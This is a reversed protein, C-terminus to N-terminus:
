LCESDITKMNPPIGASQKKRKDRPEGIEWGTGDGFSVLMIDLRFKKYFASNQGELGPRYSEDITFVFTEDPDLHPDDPEAVNKILINERKGFTLSVGAEGNPVPVDPFVLYALIFYIPKGSINKVKIELDKNWTKSQLNRVERVELPMNKFEKVNLKREESHGNSQTRGIAYIGLISATSLIILLLLRKPSLAPTQKTFSSVFEHQPNM